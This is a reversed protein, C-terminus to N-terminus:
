GLSRVAAAARHQGPYHMKATRWAPSRVDSLPHWEVGVQVTKSGRNANAAARDFRQDVTADPDDAELHLVGVFGQKDSCEVWSTIAGIASRTRPTLKKGTEEHAERAATKGHTEGAEGKGGPLNLLTKGGRTERTLLVHGDSRVIAVSAVHGKFAATAAKQQKAPPLPGANDRRAKGRGGTVKTAQEAREKREKRRRDIEAQSVEPVDTSSTVRFGPTPQVERKRKVPPASSSESGGGGDSEDGDQGVAGAPPQANSSGAAESGGATEGQEAAASPPQTSNSGAADGVDAAEGQEVMQPQDSSAADGEGTEGLNFRAHAGLNYHKRLKSLSFVYVTIQQTLKAAPRGDIQSPQGPLSVVPRHKSIGPIDVSNLRLWSLFSERSREFENGEERWEKFKTWLEDGTFRAESSELPQQEILWVLFKEQVPRKAAKLERAYEGVPIDDKTYREKVGERAKLTLYVARIVRDDAIAAGLENMYAVDGLKAPNCNLVFFRRENDSDPFTNRDNTDGFGRFFSRVNCAAGYLSRVRIKPDTIMNRVKGINGAYSKKDSEVIRVMFASRMNDNNDGWVDRAPDNTEFCAHSGVMREIADWLQGKGLGQVGVLCCMVGFKLSPYQVLHALWDLVFKEHRLGDLACLMSIHGLVRDLGQKVELELAALDVEPAMSDAAFGRFLNYCDPPCKSADPHMDFYAWKCKRSPDRLYQADKRPDKIWRHIFSHDKKKEVENGDDDLSKEVTYYKLDEHTCIFKDKGYVNLKKGRGNVGDEDLVEIFDSGVKGYKGGPLSFTAYLEDYTPEYRPDLAVAGNAAAGEGDEPGPPEYDDPICLNGDVILVKGETRDPVRAKKDKTRVEYDIPKWAWGMNIGPCVEDCATTCKALLPEDGHRAPNAVNLGDHVVTAVHEGEEEELLHVVRQMLRALPFHWLKAIFCGTRNESDEAGCFSLVWRLEPRAMLEPQIRKAEADYDKLFTNKSGRLKKDWTWPINFQEKAYARSCGDDTMLKALVDERHNVYWELQPCAIGFQKCIWLLITPMAVKMDVDATESLLHSRVPRWLGACGKASTLDGPYGQCSTKYTETVIVHEEGDWRMPQAYFNDFSAKLQKQTQKTVGNGCPRLAKIDKMGYGKFFFYATAPVRLEITKAPSPVRQDWSLKWDRTPAAAPSAAEADPGLLATGDTSPETMACAM